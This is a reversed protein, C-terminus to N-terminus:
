YQVSSYQEAGTELVFIKWKDWKLILLVDNINSSLRLSTRYSMRHFRM